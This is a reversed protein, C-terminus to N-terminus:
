RGFLEKFSLSVREQNYVVQLETIESIEYKLQEISNGFYHHQIQELGQVLLPILIVRDPKIQRIHNSISSVTDQHFPLNVYRFWKPVQYNEKVEQENQFHIILPMSGKKIYGKLFYLIGPHFKSVLLVTKQDVPLKAFAPYHLVLHLPIMDLKSHWLKYIRESFFFFCMYLVMLVVIFWAGQFFKFYVINILMGIMIVLGFIVLLSWKKIHTLRIFFSGIDICITTAIALGYMGEIQHSDPFLVIIILSLIGLFLIAKPNYVGQHGGIIPTPRHKKWANDGLGRPFFGNRSARLFELPFDSQATQAALLLIIATIVGFATAIFDGGLHLAIQLPIPPISKLDGYITQDVGLGLFNVIQLSYTILIISYLIWMSIRISKGRYFPLNVSSYGVEVGTIITAGNAVGTLLIPWFSHISNKKFFESFNPKEWGQSIIEHIGYFQIILNSFYFLLVPWILYRSLNSLGYRQVFSILLLFIIIYMFRENYPIFYLAEVGAVLSIAQTVPFDSLLSATGMKGLNLILKKIRPSRIQHAALLSSVFAGGGLKNHVHYITMKNYILIAILYVTMILAAAGVTAWVGLVFDQVLLFVTVAILSDVGYALSSGPDTLITSFILRIDQFISPNKTNHQQKM